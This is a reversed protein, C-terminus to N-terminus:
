AIQGTNIEAAATRAEKRVKKQPVVKVAIGAPLRAWYSTVRAAAFRSNENGGGLLTVM